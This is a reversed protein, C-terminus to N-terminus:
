AGKCSRCADFASAVVQKSLFTIERAGVAICVHQNAISNVKNAASGRVLGNYYWM